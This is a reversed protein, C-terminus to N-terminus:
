STEWSIGVLWVSESLFIYAIETYNPFNVSSVSNHNLYYLALNDKGRKEEGLIYMRVCVGM